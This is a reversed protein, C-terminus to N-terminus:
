NWVTWHTKTQGVAWGTFFFVAEHEVEVEGGGGRENRNVMETEM